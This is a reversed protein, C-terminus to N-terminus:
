AQAERNDLAMRESKVKYLAAMLKSEEASIERNKPKAHKLGKPVNSRRLRQVDKKPLRTEDRISDLYRHRSKQVGKHIRQAEHDKLMAEHQIRRNSFRQHKPTFAPGKGQRRRPKKQNSGSSHSYENATMRSSRTAPSEGGEMLNIEVILKDGGQSDFLRPKTVRKRGQKQQSLRAFDHVILTSKTGKTSCGHYIERQVRTTVRAIVAM